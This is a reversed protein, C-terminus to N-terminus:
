QYEKFQEVIKMVKKFSEETRNQELYEIPTLHDLKECPNTMFLNARKEGLIQSTYAQITKVNMLFDIDKM